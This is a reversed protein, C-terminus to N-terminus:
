LYEELKGTTARRKESYATDELHKTTNETVSPATDGLWLQANAPALEPPRYMEGAIMPREPENSGREALLRFPTSICLILFRLPLINWMLSFLLIDVFTTVVAQGLLKWSKAVRREGVGQPASRFVHETYRAVFYDIGTDMKTFFDEERGTLAQAVAELNTGCTACYKQELSNDKGCNPCFM